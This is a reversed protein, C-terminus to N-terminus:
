SRAHTKLFDLVDDYLGGQNAYRAYNKATTLWESTTPKAEGLARQLHAQEIPVERGESLSAEIAADSALEM